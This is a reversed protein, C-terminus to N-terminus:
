QGLQSFLDGWSQADGGTIENLYNLISSGLIIVGIILLVVALAGIIYWILMAAAFHKKNQNKAACAVIICSIFGIIPLAFLFMLGFFSGTKAVSYKGGPAPKQEETKQYQYVPPTPVVPQPQYAPQYTPQVPQQIPQPQKEEAPTQVTAEQKVPAEADPKEVATVPTGCETCFAASDDIEKGCSTCYRAM